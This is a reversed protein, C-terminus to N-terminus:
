EWWLSLLVAYNLNERIVEHSFVVTTSAADDFKGANFQRGLYGLDVVFSIASISCEDPNWTKKGIRAASGM